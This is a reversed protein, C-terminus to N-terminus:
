FLRIDMDQLHLGLVRHGKFGHWQLLTLPMFIESYKEKPEEEVLFLSKQDQSSRLILIDRPQHPAQYKLNQSNTQM